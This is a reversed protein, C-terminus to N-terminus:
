TTNLYPTIVPVYIHICNIIYCVYIVYRNVDINYMVYKCVCLYVCDCHRVDLGSFWEM